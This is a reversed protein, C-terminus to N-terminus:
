YLSYTGVCDPVGTLNASAPFPTLTGTNDVGIGISVVGGPSSVQFYGITFVGNSFVPVTGGRSPTTGPIFEANLLAPVTLTILGGPSTNNQITGFHIFGVRNMRSVALSQNITVAGSWAALQINQWTYDNFLNQVGVSVDPTVIAGGSFTKAGGPFTQANTTIVGGFGTNCSQLSLVNGVLTAGNINSLNGIPGLTLIPATGTPGTAGVTGAPGTAGGGNAGTPGTPGTPGTSGGTGGTGGGSGAPGVPGPIPIFRIDHHEHSSM